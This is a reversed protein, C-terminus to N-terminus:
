RRNLLSHFNDKAKSDHELVGTMCCTTTMATYKQAGRMVMCMHSAEIVVGVGLPVLVREIACAIEHTLREQLQLRRAFIEAMRALKSLGIVRGDPIYGIHVKGIFPMLHHECLSSIEIDKVLVLERSDVAFIADNVTDQLDENYGKTFFLMAKAYREPTKVLGQRTPDEGLYRLM